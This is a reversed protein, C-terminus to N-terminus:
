LFLNVVQLAAFRRGHQLDESYLTRCGCVLAAAVILSGYFGYGSAAQIDLAQSYLAQSPSVRWMPVLVTDLYTRPHEEVHM